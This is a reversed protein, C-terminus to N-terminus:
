NFLHIWSSNLGAAVAAALDSWNHRVRRGWLRCGVLSRWGQSEGPLFLSTPQWTRRWHMFTFLSLSTAWNHGVRPSGMSQLRGPEEMWTIKWALTVPTPHWPRRWNFLLSLVKNVFNWITLAIIRGTTMYPSNYWLSLQASFFQHKQVTINSFVRSLKKSQLSILWDWDIRFSILGSYESSLSISFSFSWYKPWRIRLVSENSFVKIDPSISPSLLLPNCLILHNFPMMSEISMLKLLIRSNTISLSAQHASNLWTRVRQSGHIIYDM